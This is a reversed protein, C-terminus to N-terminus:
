YAFHLIITRGLKVMVVSFTNDEQVYIFIGVSEIYFTSNYNYPSHHDINSFIAPIIKELTTCVYKWLFNVKLLLLLYAFYLHRWSALLVDLLWPVKGFICIKQDLNLLQNAPGCNTTQMFSVIPQCPPCACQVCNCYRLHHHAM